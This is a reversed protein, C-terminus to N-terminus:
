LGALVEYRATLKRAEFIIEKDHAEVNIIRQKYEDYLKIMIDKFLDYTNISEIYKTSLSIIKSDYDNTDETSYLRFSGGDFVIRKVIRYQNTPSDFHYFKIPENFIHEVKYSKNEISKLKSFIEHIHLFIRQKQENKIYKSILEIEPKIDNYKSLINYSWFDYYMVDTKRHFGRSLRINRELVIEERNIKVGTKIATSSFPYLLELTKMTENQLNRIIDRGPNISMKDGFKDIEDMQEKTIM